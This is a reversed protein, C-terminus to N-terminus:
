IIESIIGKALAEEAFFYRDQKLRNIQNLEKQTLGTREKVFTDMMDRQKIMVKTNENIDELKGGIMSATDHHMVVGSKYLKRHRTACVVIFAMSYANQITSDIPIKSNVITSVLLEGASCSGGMSNVILEIRDIKKWKPQEKESGWIHDEFLANENNARLISAVIPRVTAECVEYDLYLYLVNENVKEEM